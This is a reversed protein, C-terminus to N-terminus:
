GKKVEVGQERLEKITKEAVRTGVSILVCRERGM